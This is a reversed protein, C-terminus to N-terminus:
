SRIISEPTLADADRCCVSLAYGGLLISRVRLGGPLREELAPIQKPDTFGGLAKYISEKRTWLLHFRELPAPAIWELEAESLAAPAAILNSEDLGEIDAGVPGESIALVCRAGSHSLSFGPGNALYPKGEATFLISSEDRIGLARHLLIGAAIVGSAGSRNSFRAAREFRKPFLAKAARIDDASVDDTDLMYLKM